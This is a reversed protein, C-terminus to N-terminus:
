PINWLYRTQQYQCSDWEVLLAIMQQQEWPMARSDEMVECARQVLLAMTSLLILHQYHHAEIFHAQMIAESMLTRTQLQLQTLHALTYPTLVATHTTTWVNSTSSIQLLVITKRQRWSMTSLPFHYCLITKFFHLCFFILFM